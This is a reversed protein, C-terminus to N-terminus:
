LFTPLIATNVRKTKKIKNLTSKYIHKHTQFIHLPTKIKFYSDLKKNTKYNQQNIINLQIYARAAGIRHRLCMRIENTKALRLIYEHSSTIQNLLKQKYLTHIVKQHQLYQM